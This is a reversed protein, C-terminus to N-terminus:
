FLQPHSHISQWSQRDVHRAKGFLFQWTAIGREDTQAKQERENMKLMRGKEDYICVGFVSLFFIDGSIGVSAGGRRGDREATGILSAGCLLYTMLSNKM